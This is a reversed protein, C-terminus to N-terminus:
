IEKEKNLFFNKKKISLSPPFFPPLSFRQHSLSVDIPSPGPILHVQLGPVHGQGSISGEVGQDVSGPELWQVVLALACM